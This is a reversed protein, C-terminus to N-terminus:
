GINDDELGVFSGCGVSKAVTMVLWDRSEVLM